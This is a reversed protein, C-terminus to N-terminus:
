RQLSLPPSLKVSLSRPLSSVQERQGYCTARAEDLARSAMLYRVLNRASPDDSFAHVPSKFDVLASDKAKM